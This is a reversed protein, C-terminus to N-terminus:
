RIAAARWADDLARYLELSGDRFGSLRVIAGAATILDVAQTTGHPTLAHLRVAAIDAFAIRTTHGLRDILIADDVVRVRWPERLVSLFSWVIGGAVFLAAPAQGHTWWWVAVGVFALPWHLPATLTRFSRPFVRPPPGSRLPPAARERIIQALRGFGDMQYGPVIRGPGAGSRDFVELRLLVDRSRTGLSSWALVVTPAGPARYLLSSDDVTVTDDARRYMTVCWRIYAALMALMLTFIELHRVGHTEALGILFVILISFVAGSVLTMLKFRRPYRFTEM